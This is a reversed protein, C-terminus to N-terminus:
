GRCRPRGHRVRQEVRDGEPAYESHGRGGVVGPPFVLDAAGTAAGVRDVEGAPDEVFVLGAALGQVVVGSLVLRASAEAEGAAVTSGGAARGAGPGVRAVRVVQDAGSQGSVVAAVDGGGDAIVRAYEGGERGGREARDVVTGVVAGAAAAGRVRGVGRLQAGSEIRLTVVVRASHQEVVVGTLEPLAEGRSEAAFEGGAGAQRAPFQGVVKANRVALDGLELLTTGQVEMGDYPEVARLPGPRRRGGPGGDAEERVCELGGCLM